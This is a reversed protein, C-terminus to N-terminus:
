LNHGNDNTAVSSYKVSFYQVLISFSGFIALELVPLFPASISTVSAM